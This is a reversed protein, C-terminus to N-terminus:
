STTALACQRREAPQALHNGPFRRPPRPRSARRSRALYTRSTSLSLQTRSRHSSCNPPPRPSSRTATQKAMASTLRHSRSGAQRSRLATTAANPSGLRSTVYPRSIRQRMSCYIYSQNSRATIADAGVRELRRASHGTSAPITQNDTSTRPRVALPVDEPKPGAVATLARLEPQTKVSILFRPTLSMQMATQSPRFPKGSAIVM